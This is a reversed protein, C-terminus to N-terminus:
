SSALSRSATATPRTDIEMSESMLALARKSRAATQAAVADSPVRVKYGRMHADQATALVCSDTAVGTIVLAS